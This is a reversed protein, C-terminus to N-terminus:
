AFSSSLAFRALLGQFKSAALERFTKRLWRFRAADAFLGTIM